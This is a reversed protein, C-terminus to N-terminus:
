APHIPTYRVIVEGKGATYNGVITMGVHYRGVTGVGIDAGSGTVKGNAVLNATAGNAATVFGDADVATGDEEFLGVAISTGGAAAEDTLYVEVSDVVAQDPITFDGANFGDKTGDNNRDTTYTVGADFEDSGLDFRFVAEKQTGMSNVAYPQFTKINNARGFDVKLGDANYWQSM